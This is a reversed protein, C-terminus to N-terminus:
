ARNLKAEISHQTHPVVRLREKSILKGTKLCIGYTGRNIRLLAAELENKYKQLRGAMQSLYEKEAADVGDEITRIGGSTMDTGNDDRRSLSNQLTELEENTKELKEQILVQFEELEEATYRNKEKLM